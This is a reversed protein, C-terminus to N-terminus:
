AITWQGAGPRPMVNASSTPDINKGVWTVATMPM